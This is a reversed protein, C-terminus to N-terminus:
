ERCVTIEKENAADLDVHDSGGTHLHGVESESGKLRKQWPSLDALQSIVIDADDLGKRLSPILDM